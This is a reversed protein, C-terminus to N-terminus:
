AAHQAAAATQDDGHVGRKRLGYVCLTSIISVGVIYTCILWPGNHGWILLAQLILPTMGSSVISAFQYVVSIGSYRVRPEFLNSYLAGQPAFMMPYCIGFTAVLALTLALPGADFLLFAPITLIAALATGSGYIRAQSFSDSIRGWVPILCTAVAAAIMVGRLATSEPLSIVGTLYAISFVAWTNFSVGEAWKTGMALLITSKRVSVFLDKLPAKAVEGSRKLERFAPSDMVKLRIILGAAM